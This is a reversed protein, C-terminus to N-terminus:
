RTRNRGDVPRVFGATSHTASRGVGGEVLGPLSANPGELPRWGQAFWDSYPWQWSTPNEDTIDRGDCWVRLTRDAPKEATPRTAM